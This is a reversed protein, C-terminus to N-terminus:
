FINRFTPLMRTAYMQVFENVNQIRRTDESPVMYINKTFKTEKCELM